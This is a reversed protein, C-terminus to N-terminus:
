AAPLIECNAIMVKRKTEPGPVVTGHGRIALRLVDSTKRNENKYRFIYSLRRRAEPRSLM